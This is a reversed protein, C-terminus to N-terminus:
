CLYPPFAVLDSLRLLTSKNIMKTKSIAVNVILGILSKVFNVEVSFRKELNKGFAVEIKM